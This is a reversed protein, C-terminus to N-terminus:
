LLNLLNSNNLLHYSYSRNVTKKFAKSGLESVSIASIRYSYYTFLIKIIASIIISSIYLVTFFTLLQDNSTINITKIINQIFAYKKVLDPEVLFSLFPYIASLSILETFSNIITLLLLYNLQRKRIPSLYGWSLKLIQYINGNELIRNM